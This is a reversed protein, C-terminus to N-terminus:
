YSQFLDGKLTEDKFPRKKAISVVGSTSIQYPSKVKKPTNLIAWLKEYESDAKQNLPAMRYGKLKKCSEVYGQIADFLNMLAIRPDDGSEVINFELGVAHWTDADKFVIYRVSGM